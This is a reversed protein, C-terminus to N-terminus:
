RIILRWSFHRTDFGNYTFYNGFSSLCFAKKARKFAPLSTKKLSPLSPTKSKPEPSKISPHFFDLSDIFKFKYLLLIYLNSFNPEREGKRERWGDKCFQSVGARGDLKPEFRSNINVNRQNKELWSPAPRQSNLFRIQLFSRMSNRRGTGLLPSDWFHDTWGDFFFHYARGRIQEM